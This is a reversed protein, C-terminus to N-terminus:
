TLSATAVLNIGANGQSSVGEGAHNFSSNTVTLTSM